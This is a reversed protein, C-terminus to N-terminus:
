SVWSANLPKEPVNARTIAAILFQWSTPKFTPKLNVILLRFKLIDGSYKIKNLFPVRPDTKVMEYAPRTCIEDRPNIVVSGSLHDIGNQVAGPHKV